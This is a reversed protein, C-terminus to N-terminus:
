QPNGTVMSLFLIVVALVWPGFAVIFGTRPDKKVWTAYIGAAGLGLFIFAFAVTTGESYKSTQLVGIANLACRLGFYLNTASVFWTFWTLRKM